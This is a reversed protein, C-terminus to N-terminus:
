LAPNALADALSNLPSSFSGNGGPAAQNNVFLVLQPVRIEVTAASGGVLTYSFSDTGRFNLPPLYEFSGDAAVNVQGGSESAGQFIAAELPDGLDNALVGARADLRLPTNGLAIYSDDSATARSVEPTDFPLSSEPSTSGCGAFLALATFLTTFLRIKM